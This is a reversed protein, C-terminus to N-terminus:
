QNWRLLYGLIVLNSCNESLNSFVSNLFTCDVQETKTATNCAPYNCQRM